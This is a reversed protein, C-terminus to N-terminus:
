VKEIEDELAHVEKAEGNHFYRVLYSTGRASKNIELIRANARECPVFVVHELLEFPEPKDGAATAAADANREYQVLARAITTIDQDPLRSRFPGNDLYDAAWRSLETLEDPSMLPKLSM